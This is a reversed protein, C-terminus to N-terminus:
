APLQGRSATDLMAKAPRPLRFRGTKELRILENRAKAYAVLREADNDSDRATTLLRVVREVTAREKEPLHSAQIREAAERAAAWSRRALDVAALYRARHPPPPPADTDLAQAEAFAEVFRATSPVTVDALAPLRLVALPDCEYAAYEQRLLAFDQRARLWPDVTPPAVARRPPNLVMPPRGPMMPRSQRTAARVALGAVLVPVLVMSGVMLAAILTTLALLGAGIGVVALVVLLPPPVHRVTRYTRYARYAHHPLQSRYPHQPRFPGPPFGTAGHQHRRRTQHYRHQDM